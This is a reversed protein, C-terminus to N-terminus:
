RAYGPDVWCRPLAEGSPFRLSAKAVAQPDQMEEGAHIRGLVDTAFPDFLQKLDLVELLSADDDHQIKLFM